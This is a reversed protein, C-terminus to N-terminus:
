PVLQRVVPTLGRFLDCQLKSSNCFTGQTKEFLIRAQARWYEALFQFDLVKASPPQCSEGQNPKVDFVWGMKIENSQQPLLLIYRRNQVALKSRCFVSM